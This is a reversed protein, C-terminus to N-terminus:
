NVKGLTSQSGQAGDLLFPIQAMKAVELVIAEVDELAVNLHVHRCRVEEAIASVNVIRSTESAQKVTIHIDNRLEALEKPSM